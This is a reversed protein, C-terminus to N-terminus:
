VRTSRRQRAENRFYGFPVLFGIAITLATPVLFDNIELGAFLMFLLVSVAASIAGMAGAHM